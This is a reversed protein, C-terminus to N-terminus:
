KWSLLSSIDTSEESCETCGTSLCERLACGLNKPAKGYDAMQWYPSLSFGFRNKETSEPRDGILTLIENRLLFQHPDLSTFVPYPDFKSNATLGYTHQYGILCLLFLFLRSKKMCVMEIREQSEARKTLKYLM